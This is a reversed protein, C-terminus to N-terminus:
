HEAIQTCPRAARPLAAPRCPLPLGEPPVAPIAAMGEFFAKCYLGTGGVFVPRRNAALTEGVTREAM